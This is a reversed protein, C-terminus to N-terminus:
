IHHLAVMTLLCNELVSRKKFVVRSLGPIAFFTSIYWAITTWFGYDPIRSGM